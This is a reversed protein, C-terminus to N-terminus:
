ESKSLKIKVTHEKGTRNFKLTVEDDPKFKYLYYKLKAVSTVEYDNIGTIVDGLKLGGKDAPSDEQVQVVVAGEVGDDVMIRYQELIYTDSTNLM